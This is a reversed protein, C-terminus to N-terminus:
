DSWWHAKGVLEYSGHEARYYAEGENPLSFYGKLGWSKVETVLMFCRSFTDSSEPNIQVVDGPEIKDKNQEKKLAKDFKPNM